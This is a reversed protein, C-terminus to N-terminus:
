PIQKQCPLISGMSEWCCKCGISSLCISLLSSEMAPELPVPLVAWALTMLIPVHFFYAPGFSSCSFISFAEVHVRFWPGLRPNGMGAKLYSFSEMGWKVPVSAVTLIPEPGSIPEPRSIPISIVATLLHWLCLLLLLLTCM